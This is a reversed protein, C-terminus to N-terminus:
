LTRATSGAVAQMRLEHGLWQAYLVPRSMDPYHIIKRHKDMRSLLLHATLIMMAAIMSDGYYKSHFDLTQPMTKQCSYIREAPLDKWRIDPYCRNRLAECLHLFAIDVNAMGTPSRTELAFCINSINPPGGFECFDKKAAERLDQSFTSQAKGIPELAEAIRMLEDVEQMVWTMSM